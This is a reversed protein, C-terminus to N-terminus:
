TIRLRRITANSVARFRGRIESQLQESVNHAQDFSVDGPASAFDFVGSGSLNSETTPTTSGSQHCFLKMLRQLHHLESMVLQAAKRGDQSKDGRIVTERRVLEGIASDQRMRRSAPAKGSPLISQGEDVIAAYWAIAKLLVLGLMHILYQDKPCQCRMITIATDIAQRNQQLVVDLPLCLPEPANMGPFLSLLLGTAKALCDDLPPTQTNSDQNKQPADQRPPLMQAVPAVPSANMSIMQSGVTFDISSLDSTMDFDTMVSMDTASFGNTDMGQVEVNATGVDSFDFESWPALTSVSTTLSDQESFWHDNTTFADLMDDTSVFEVPIDNQTTKSPGADGATSAPPTVPKIGARGNRRSVGYNCPRGRRVCRQCNPRERTCKVKSTSCDDCSEKLKLQSAPDDGTSRAGASSQPSAM